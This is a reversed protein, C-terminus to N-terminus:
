CVYLVEDFHQILAPQAEWGWLGNDHNTPKLMVQHGVRFWWDPEGSKAGKHVCFIGPM